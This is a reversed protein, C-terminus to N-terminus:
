PVQANVPHHAIKGTISLLIRSKNGSISMLQNVKLVISHLTKLMTHYSNM